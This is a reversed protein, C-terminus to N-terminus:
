LHNMLWEDKFNEYADCGDYYECLRCVHRCRYKYERSLWKRLIFSLRIRILM